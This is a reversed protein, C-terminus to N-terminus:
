KVADSILTEKYRTVLEALCARLSVLDIGSASGTSEIFGASALLASAIVDVVKERDHREIGIDLSLYDGKPAVQLNDVGSLHYQNVDGDVRLIFALLPFPFGELRLGASAAKLAKFHPLVAAAADRGGFEASFDIQSTKM